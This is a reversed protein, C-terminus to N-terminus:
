PREERCEVARLKCVRLALKLLRKVRASPSVSSPM